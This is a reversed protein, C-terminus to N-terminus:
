KQLSALTQFTNKLSELSSINEAKRNECLDVFTKIEKFYGQSVLHNNQFVPLFGNGNYLYKYEPCSPFIKEVPVSFIVPPKPSYVLTQHNEMVYIGQQTNIQLEEKPQNWAYQTSIEINGIINQHRVQLLITIEGKRRGTKAVSLAETEGFLYSVLDVPHIFLDWYVDGEPCAGVLFRYNYSIIKERNLKKKLLVTCESYRKQFGALCIRNTKRSVDILDTLEDVSTCPPKEVFVNKQKLLAKKVLQYHNAPNACIFIGNIEPDDLVEEYRTTGLVPSFNRNIMGATQQSKSIIYKLPVNLYDLVPYLNNISHNGIGVFAYKFSYQRELWNRKRIKKFLEIMDSM